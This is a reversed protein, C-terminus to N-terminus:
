KGKYENISKISVAYDKWVNANKYLDVSGDPVYITANNYARKGFFFGSNPGIRPPTLSELIIAKLVKKPHGWLTVDPIYPWEGVLRIRKYSVNNDKFLGSYKFFPASVYQLNTDQFMSGTFASSSFYALEDFYVISSNNFVKGISKVAALEDKTIRGNNDTDFYKLCIAEANPDEFKIFRNEHIFLLRRRYISMSGGGEARRQYEKISYNNRDFLHSSKHQQLTYDEITFNKM